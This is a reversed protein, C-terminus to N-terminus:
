GLDFGELFQSQVVGFDGVTSEGFDLGNGGEFAEIQDIRLDAVGSQVM